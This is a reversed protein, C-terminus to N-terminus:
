AEDIALLSARIRVKTRPVQDPQQEVRLCATVTLRDTAAGASM